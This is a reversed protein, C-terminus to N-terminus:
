HLLIKEFNPFFNIKKEEKFDPFMIIKEKMKYISSESLEGYFM